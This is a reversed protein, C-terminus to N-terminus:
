AVEEVINGSGQPFHSTEGSGVGVVTHVGLGRGLRAACPNDSKIVAGHCVQQYEGTALQCILKGCTM